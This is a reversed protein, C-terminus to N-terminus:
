GPNYTSLTEGLEITWKPYEQGRVISMLEAKGNRYTGYCTFVYKIDKYTVIFDMEFLLLMDELKVSSLKVNAECILVGQEKLEILEKYMNESNGIYDKIEEGGYNELAKAANEATFYAPICEWVFGDGTIIGKIQPILLLIVACIVAIISNIKRNFLKTKEAIENESYEIVKKVSIDITESEDTKLREGSILEIITVDLIESLPELLSIDPACIGREWKSVARDTIHLKEALAKQTMNKEKRLERILEGTKINDMIDGRKTIKM